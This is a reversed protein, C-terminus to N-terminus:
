GAAGGYVVHLLRKDGAIWRETFPMARLAIPHSM